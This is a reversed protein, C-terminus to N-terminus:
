GTSIRYEFNATVTAGSQLTITRPGGYDVAAISLEIRYRGPSLVASYDGSAGTTANFVKGGDVLSFSLTLGSVPTAPCNPQSTAFGPCVFRQVHGRIVGQSPPAGTTCAASIIAAALLVPTVKM